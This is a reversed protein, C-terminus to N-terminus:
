LLIELTQRKPRELLEVAEQYSRVNNYGMVLGYRKGSGRYWESLANVQLQ